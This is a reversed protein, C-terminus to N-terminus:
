EVPKESAPWGADVLHQVVQTAPLPNAAAVWPDKPLYKEMEPYLKQVQQTSTCTSIAALLERELARQKNWQENFLKQLEVLEKDCGETPKINYAGKVQIGPFSGSARSRVYFNGIYPGTLPNAILEKITAPIQAEADKRLLAEGIALYDVWAIDRVVKDAFDKRMKETLRM